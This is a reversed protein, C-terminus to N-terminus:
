TGGAVHAARMRADPAHIRRPHRRRCGGTMSLSAGSEDGVCQVPVRCDDKKLGEVSRARVTRELFDTQGAQVSDRSVRSCYGSTYWEPWNLFELPTSLRLM